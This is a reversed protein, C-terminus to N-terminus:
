DDVREGNIIERRKKESNIGNKKFKKKKRKEGGFHKLKVDVLLDSDDFDDLFESKKM